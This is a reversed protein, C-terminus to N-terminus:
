EWRVPEYQAARDYDHDPKKQLHPNDLKDQNTLIRHPASDSRSVHKHISGIVNVNKGRRAFSVADCAHHLIDPTLINRVDIVSISSRTRNPISKQEQLISM